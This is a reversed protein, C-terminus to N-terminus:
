LFDVIIKAGTESHHKIHDEDTFGKNSFTKKAAEEDRFARETDHAFAAIYLAEDADPKLEKLWYVTREFHRIDKAYPTNVFAQVIFREVKPYYNMNM